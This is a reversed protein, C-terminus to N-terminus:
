ISYSYYSCVDRGLEQALSSANLRENNHIINTTPIKKYINKILHLFNGEIGIRRLTKTMLLHQIKDFVKETGVSIIIHNKLRNM